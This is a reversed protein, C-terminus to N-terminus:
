RELPGENQRYWGRDRDRDNTNQQWKLEKDTCRYYGAGMWGDRMCWREHLQVRVIPPAAASNEGANAGCTAAIVVGVMVAPRLWLQYNNM